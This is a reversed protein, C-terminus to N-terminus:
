KREEMLYAVMEVCVEVMTILKVTSWLLPAVHCLVAIKSYTFSSVFKEREIM